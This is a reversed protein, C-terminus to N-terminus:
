TQITNQEEYLCKKPLRPIILKSWVARFLVSRSKPLIAKMWLMHHNDFSSVAYVSYTYGLKMLLSDQESLVGMNCLANCLDADSELDRLNYSYKNCHDHSNHLSTDDIPHAFLRPFAPKHVNDLIMQNHLFLPHLFSLEHNISVPSMLLSRLM